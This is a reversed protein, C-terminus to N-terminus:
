SSSPTTVPEFQGPKLHDASYEGFRSRHLRTVTLGHAAFMRKVQHYRGETLTLRAECEGTIELLAPAVPKDDDPLTWNGNIFTAILSTPVTADLAVEYVKHMKSRPSTLRHVWEHIDTILLAGTTDRDLRGITEPRPNRQLWQDPLLDFVSAGERPNHSCVLGEPKHMLLFIGDPFDIPLGDVLCDKPDVQTRTKTVPQGNVLVRGSRLWGQAHSRSCYGFRSLMQDARM